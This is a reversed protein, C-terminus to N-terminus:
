RPKIVDITKGGIRYRKGSEAPRESIRKWESISDKKKRDQRRKKM